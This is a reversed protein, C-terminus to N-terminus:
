YFRFFSFKQLETGEYIPKVLVVTYQRPESDGCNLILQLRNIKLHQLITLHICFAQPKLRDNTPFFLFWIVSLVMLFRPYCKEGKNKNLPSFINKYNKLGTRLAIFTIM